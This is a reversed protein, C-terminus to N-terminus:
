RRGCATSEARVQEALAAIPAMMPNANSFLEFQLRLPHLQRM